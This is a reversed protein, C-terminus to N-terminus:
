SGVLSSGCWGVFLVVVMVVGQVSIAWSRAWVMWCGWQATVLGVVLLWVLRRMKWSVVVMVACIMKWFM